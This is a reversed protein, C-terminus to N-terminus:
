YWEKVQGIAITIDAQSNYLDDFWKQNPITNWRVTVRSSSEQLTQYLFREVTGSEQTKREAKLDDKLSKMMEQAELKGAGSKIFRDVLSMLEDFRSKYKQLVDLVAQKQYETTQVKPM